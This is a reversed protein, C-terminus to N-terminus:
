RQLAEAMAVPTDVREHVVRYGGRALERLVLIEDDERDELLLLRLEKM